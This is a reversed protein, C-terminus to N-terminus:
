IKQIKVTSNGIKLFYMGLPLDKINLFSPTSSCSQMIRGQLDYLTMPLTNDVTSIRIIDETPNPYVTVQNKFSNETVGTTMSSMKHVFVDGYYGFASLNFVGVGPDFDVTGTFYGTTYINGSADVAISSGKENDNGALQNAWVFDGLANLKFIFMDSRSTGLSTIDFTGSGPDFDVTGIVYGTTYVNGSADVAISTASVSEGVLQKAWLFNGSADLKSIFADSDSGDPISVTLNFIDTSPDFDVTGKFGGAIYVNGSADSTITRGSAGGSSAAFQKAWVFNGSADLKSIFADGNVATLTFTSVGLDFDVSGSFWGTTLVNGVVDVAISTSRRSYQPAAGNFQKAWVFNGSADLKSIFIESYSPSASSLELIGAGPDFDVVGFFYGTTYVNGLGDLAISEPYTSAIRKAWLFNGSSDLKCVFMGGGILYFTNSTGAAPDFDVTGSFDGTICVNGSADVAISSTYSETKFQKAWLFNGSPDLKSVFVDNSGTASLEFVGIGPDFDVTSEFFGTTYVNGSADVVISNGSAKSYGKFQKAWALNQANVVQVMTILVLSLLISKTTM